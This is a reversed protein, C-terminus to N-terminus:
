IRDRDSSKEGKYTHRPNDETEVARDILLVYANKSSFSLTEVM